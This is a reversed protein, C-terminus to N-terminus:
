HLDGDDHFVKVNGENTFTIWSSGNRWTNKIISHIKSFLAEVEEKTIGINITLEDIFYLCKKSMSSCNNAIVFM